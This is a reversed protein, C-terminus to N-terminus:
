DAVQENALLKILFLHWRSVWPNPQNFVTTTCDYSYSQIFVDKQIRHVSISFTLVEAVPEEFVELEMLIIFYILHLEKCIEAIVVSPQFYMFGCLLLTEVTGDSAQPNKKTARDLLVLRELPGM